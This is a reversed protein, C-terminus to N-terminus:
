AARAQRYLEVCVPKLYQVPMTVLSGRHEGAVHLELGQTVQAGAEALSVLLLGVPGHQTHEDMIHARRREAWMTHQAVDNGVM